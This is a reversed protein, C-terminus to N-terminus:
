EWKHITWGKKIAINTLKKDPNICVPYGVTDLVPLDEISDGYYYVDKVSCKHLTCFDFLRKSKEDDLCLQGQPIGTFLGNVIELKSCIIDDFKLYSAIPECIYPLAASLIVLRANNEKHMKIEEYMEPRILDLLENNVINGSLDSLEQESIGTLWNPMQDVIQTTKRLDFKHLLSLYIAHIMNRTSMLGSQYASRILVRGSNVKLLTRDLDFFAIYDFHQSM